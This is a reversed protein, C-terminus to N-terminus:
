SQIKIADNRHATMEVQDIESATMIFNRDQGTLM